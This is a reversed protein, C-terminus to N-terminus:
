SPVLFNYKYFVKQDTIEINNVIVPNYDISFPEDPYFLQVGNKDVSLFISNYNINYAGFKQIGEEANNDWSWGAGWTEDDLATDDIYITNYECNKLKDLMSLLDYAMLKPDGSLKLYLNQNKDKYLSTKFKYDYGLTDVAAKMTFIKLVSAPLVRINQNRSYLTESTNTDAVMVTILPHSGNLSDIVSDISALSMLQSFLAFILLFVFKKM